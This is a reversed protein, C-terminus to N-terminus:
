TPWDTDPLVRGGYQTIAVNRIKTSLDSTRRGALANSVTGLSVGFAKAIKCGVGYPLIIKEIKKM